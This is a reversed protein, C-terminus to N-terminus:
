RRLCQELAYIIIHFFNCTFDTAVMIVGMIVAKLHAGVHYLRGKAETDQITRLEIPYLGDWYGLALTMLIEHSFAVKIWSPGM